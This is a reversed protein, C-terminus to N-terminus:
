WCYPYNPCLAPNFSAPYRAGGQEAVPAAPAVPAAAYPYSWQPIPMGDPTHRALADPACLPLQSLSKSLLQRPLLLLPPLTLTAGSPSPCATRLTGPQLHFGNLIEAIVM